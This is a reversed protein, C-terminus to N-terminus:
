NYTKTIDEKLVYDESDVYCSESDLRADSYFDIFYDLQRESDMCCADLTQSFRYVLRDALQEAISELQMEAEDFEETDMETNRYTELIDLAEQLLPRDEELLAPISKDMTEMGEVFKDPDNVIIYSHNYAGVSWDHLSGRVFDLQESVYNMETEVMDNQVEDRLQANADFVKALEEASMDVIYKKEM